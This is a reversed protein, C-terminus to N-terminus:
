SQSSPQFNCSMVSSAIFTCSTFFALSTVLSVSSHDRIPTSTATAISHFLLIAVCSVFHLVLGVKRSGM